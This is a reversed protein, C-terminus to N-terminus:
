ARRGPCMKLEVAFTETRAPVGFEPEDQGFGVFDGTWVDHKLCCGASVFVHRGQHSCVKPARDPLRKCRLKEVCEEM